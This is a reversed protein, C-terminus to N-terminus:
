TTRMGLLKVSAYRPLLRELICEEVRNVGVLGCGGGVADM